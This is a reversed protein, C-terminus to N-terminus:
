SAAPLHAVVAGALQTATGCLQSQLGSGAVAVRVIEALPDVNTSTYTRHEVEVACTGPGDDGPQVFAPRSGIQVPKGDAATLPSNRDFRVDVTTNTSNSSWKCEWDGFGADAQNADIGPVTALSNADLLKCAD